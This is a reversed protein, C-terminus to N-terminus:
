LRTKDSQDLFTDKFWSQLETFDVEFRTDSILHDKKALPIKDLDIPPPLFPNEGSEEKKSKPAMTTFLVQLKLFFTLPSPQPQILCQLPPPFHIEQYLPFTFPIPSSWFLTSNSHVLIRKPSCPCTLHVIPIHGTM